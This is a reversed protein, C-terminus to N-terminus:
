RPARRPGTFIRPNTRPIGFLVFLVAVRIIVPALMMSWTELTMHYLEGSENFGYICFAFWALTVM